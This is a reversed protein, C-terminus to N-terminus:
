KRGILKALSKKSEFYAYAGYGAASSGLLGTIIGGIGTSPITTVPVTPKVCDKSDKPLNSNYECVTCQPSDKPLSPNTTCVTCQPSDKPLSPNTACPVEVSTNIDKACKADTVVKDQGNVTFTLDTTTKYTGDKAYMHTTSFPATTVTAPTTNDGFNYVVSKLVAGNKVTYNVTYKYNREKKLDGIREVTLADCTYVPPQPAAVVEVTYVVWVRDDWCGWQDGSGAVESGIKLSGNVASDPADTWGTHLSYAKVTHPVLKLQVSNTCNLVGTDTVSAANSASIVSKFTFKKGTVGLPSTQAVSVNHAVASGSGNQNYDNDAGNHSYTRIDFKDGVNCSSNVPDIYNQQTAPVKPDGTSVRLRVFDSEDGVGNPINTYTNFVPNQLSPLDQGPVYPIQAAHVTSVIGTTLATIATVAILAKKIFSIYNKM